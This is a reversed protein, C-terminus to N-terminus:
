TREDLERELEAEEAACEDCLGINDQYERESILQDCVDCQYEM